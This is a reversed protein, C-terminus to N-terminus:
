VNIKSRTWVAVRVALLCLPPNSRRVPCTSVAHSQMGCWLVLPLAGAYLSGFGELRWMRWMASMVSLPAKHVLSARMSVNELPLLVTRTASHSLAGAQM